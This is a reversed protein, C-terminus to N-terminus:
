SLLPMGAVSTRAKVITGAGRCAVLLDRRGPGAWAINTPMSIVRGEPDEVMRVLGGDATIAVIANAFPLTVWLRGSLDFAIGDCYGLRGRAAAPLSRIAAIGHDPVVEGLVPGYDERPGLRGDARRRFRCVRGEATLAVYLFGQGRDFCCGNPSRLGSAVVEVVGDPRVRYVFGSAERRGINRIDSWASHTCYISGDRAVAPFNSALLERGDVREAVAASAGSAPDIRLLPGSVGKLLGVNAVLVAGDAM